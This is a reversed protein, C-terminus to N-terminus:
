VVPAIKRWERLDKDKVVSTEEWNGLIVELQDKTDKSARKLATKSIMVVDKVRDKFTTFTANGALNKSIQSMGERSNSRVAVTAFMYEKLLQRSYGTGRRKGEQRVARVFAWPSKAVFIKEAITTDITNKM